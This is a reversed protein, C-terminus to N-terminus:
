FLTMQESPLDLEITDVLEAHYGILSKLNYALLHDQHQLIATSGIVARVVGALQPQNKMVIVSTLDLDNSNFAASTSIFESDGFALGLSREIQQKVQELQQGAKSEDFGATLLALKKSSAVHEVIGPLAAIKAEYDRAINASPFTELKIAARAGQEYIRRLGRAEQSIGVKIIGDSFYVIYLYHPQRNISEQQKSITKAHYFAPNFGTKNRCVICQDHKPEVTTNDLCPSAQRKEMDVWGTCYRISTDFSLSLNKGLLQKRSIEQGVQIDIIPSNASDFGVYSLLFRQPLM